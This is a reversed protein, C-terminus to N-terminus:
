VPEISTFKFWAYCQKDQYYEPTADREPSSLKGDTRLQLGTCKAKYVLNQGSDLLFLDIPTSEVESRWISFEALPTTENGKKWWGVM